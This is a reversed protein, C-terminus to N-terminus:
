DNSNLLRDFINRKLRMQVGDIELTVMDGGLELTMETIGTELFCFENGQYVGKYMPISYNGYLGYEACEIDPTNEFVTVIADEYLRANSNDGDKILTIKTSFPKFSNIEEMRGSETYGVPICAEGFEDRELDCDIREYGKASIEVGNETKQVLYEKGDKSIVIEEVEPLWERDEFNYGEEYAIALYGEVSIPQFDASMNVKVVNYGNFTINNNITFTKKM